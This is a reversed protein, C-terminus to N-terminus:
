LIRRRKLIEEYARMKQTRIELIGCTDDHRRRTDEFKSRWQRCQDKWYEADRSLDPLLRGCAADIPKLPCRIRGRLSANETKLDANERELGCRAKELCCQDNELKDIIQRLREEECSQRATNNGANDISLRLAENDASLANIQGQLQPVVVHSFHHADAQAAALSTRLANAEDTLSRNNEALCREREVLRNWEDRSVRYVDPDHHRHHHRHHRRSRKVSIIQEKGSPATEFYWRRSMRPLEPM